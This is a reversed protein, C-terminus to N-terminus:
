TLRGRLFAEQYAAHVAPQIKRREVRARLCEPLHWSPPDPFIDQAHHPYAGELDDDQLYWRFSGRVQWEHMLLLHM